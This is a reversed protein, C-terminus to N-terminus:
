KIVNREKIYINIYDSLCKDKLYVVFSDETREIHYNSFDNNDLYNKVVINFEHKAKNYNAYVDLTDVIMTGESVDEITLVYVKDM